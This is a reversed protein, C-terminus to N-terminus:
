AAAAASPANSIQQLIDQLMAQGAAAAAGLLHAAAQRVPASSSTLLQALVEVGGKDSALERQLALRGAPVPQLPSDWLSLLQSLARATAAQMAEDSLDLLYTSPPMLAEVAGPAAAVQQAVDESDAVLHM